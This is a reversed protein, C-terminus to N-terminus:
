LRQQVLACPCALLCHCRQWRCPHARTQRHRHRARRCGSRCCRGSVPNTDHARHQTIAYRRVIYKVLDQRRCLVRRGTLAVRSAVFPRGAQGVLHRPEYKVTALEREVQRRARLHIPFFAKGELLARRQHPRTVLQLDSAVLFLGSCLPAGIVSIRGRACLAGLALTSSALVM